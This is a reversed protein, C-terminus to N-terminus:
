TKHPYKGCSGCYRYKGLGKIKMKEGCYYCRRYVCVERCSKCYSGDGPGGIYMDGGCHHCKLYSGKRCKKCAWDWTSLKGGCHMCLGAEHWKDAQRGLGSKSPQTPTTTTKPSPTVSVPKPTPQPPQIINVQRLTNSNQSQTIQNQFAAATACWPCNPFDKHYQHHSVKTCNMLQNRLAGLVGHWEAPTPRTEPNVHGDIFARKFLDQVNQPLITIPPAFVPIKVGSINMLFPCEGKIINESPQPAVVSSQSPIIACAFPHVGNMLLQFIHVALAFNDTDYSFTPLSATVLTGGGRMKEQIERPLYEPIGVDCRHVSAGDQIHYSDTDLFTIHGTNTNVSINRPNFDGCIHGEAHISHLVACLNEAIIIKNQWAMDSYKASYGFEYIMNLDEGIEMKPM